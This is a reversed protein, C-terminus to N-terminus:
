FGFSLFFRLKVMGAGIPAYQHCRLGLSFKLYTFAHIQLTRCRGAMPITTGACVKTHCRIDIRQWIDQLAPHFDAAIEGDGRWHAGISSMEIESLIEFIYFCTNPTNQLTGGNSHDCQRLSRRSRSTSISQHLPIQPLAKQCALHLQSWTILLPMPFIM